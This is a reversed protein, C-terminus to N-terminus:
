FAGDNDTAMLETVQALWDSQDTTLVLLLSAILLLPSVVDVRLHLVFLSFIYRVFHVFYLNCLM